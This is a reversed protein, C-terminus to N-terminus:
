GGVNSKPRIQLMGLGALTLLSLTAPEPVIVVGINDIGAEYGMLEVYCTGQDSSLPITEHGSGLPIPLTWIMGDGSVSFALYGAQPIFTDLEMTGSISLPGGGSLPFRYALHAYDELLGSHFELAPPPDGYSTTYGLRANEPISIEDLMPSRSHSDWRAKDTSFDDVYVYSWGAQLSKGMCLVCAAVAIGRIFARHLIM